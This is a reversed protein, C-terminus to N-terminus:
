GDLARLASLVNAMDDPLVSDFAMLKRSTPHVFGITKAHLAQRSIM